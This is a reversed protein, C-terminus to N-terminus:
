FWNWLVDTQSLSNPQSNWPISHVHDFYTQFLMIAV